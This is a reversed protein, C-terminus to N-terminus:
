RVPSTRSPWRPSVLSSGQGLSWRQWPRGGGHAPRDPSRCGARAASGLLWCVSVPALLFGTLQYPGTREWIAKIYLGLLEPRRNGFFSTRSVDPYSLALQDTATSFGMPYLPTGSLVWNRAYWFGGLVLMGVAGAAAVRAASRRGHAAAVLAVWVALALIAYGLAYYKVGALLGLSVAGLVKTGRRPVTHDQFAYTLAAIFCAAVAIDNEQDVLQEFVVFHCVLALGALHALGRPLGIQTAFAVGSCGLLATVPLNNLAALFDGSFPAVAWLALLENNGPNAWRDCRTAWLSQTQLWQDVLPIHYALSDWDSPYAVIGNTIVHGVWVGGLAGWLGLWWREARDDGRPAFPAHGPQALEVALTVASGAAVGALLAPATLMGISGLATAVTVIGGWGLVIAHGILGLHSEQPFLRRAWRWATAALIANTLFWVAAAVADMAPERSVWIVPLIM